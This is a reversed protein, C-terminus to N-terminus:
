QALLSSVVPTSLVHAIYASRGMPASAAYVRSSERPATSWSLSQWSVYTGTVVAPTISHPVEPQSRIASFPGAVAPHPAARLRSYGAYGQWRSKDAPTFDPLLSKGAWIRGPAKPRLCLQSGVLGYGAPVTSSHVYPAIDRKGSFRPAPRSPVCTVESHM